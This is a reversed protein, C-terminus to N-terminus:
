DYILFFELYSANILEEVRLHKGVNCEDVRVGTSRILLRTKIM